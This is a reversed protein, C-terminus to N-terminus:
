FGFKDSTRYGHCVLTDRILRIMYLIEAQEMFNMSIERFKTELSIQWDKTLFIDFFIERKDPHIPIGECINSTEDYYEFTKRGVLIHTAEDCKSVTEQIKDAVNNMQKMISKFNEYWLENM